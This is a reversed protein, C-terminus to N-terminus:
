LVPLTLQFKPLGWPGFCSVRLGQVWLMVGPILTATSNSSAVFVGYECDHAWCAGSCQYLPRLLYLMAVPPNELIGLLRLTYRNLSSPLLVDVFGQVKYPTLCRVILVFM